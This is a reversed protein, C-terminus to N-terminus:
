TGAKARDLAAALQALDVDFFRTEYDDKKWGAYHQRRELIARYERGAEDLRKQGLYWWALLARAPLFNPEIDILDGLYSVARDQNGLVLHLRALEYRYFPSYPYDTLAREYARVSARRWALRQESTVPESMVSAAMAAYVHGELGSLRGDMPNLRIAQALEALAMGASAREHNREFEQFYLSALSNHYLAKGSDLAVAAHYHGRAEAWQQTAAAKSGAEFEAWAVGLRVAQIAMASIVVIVGVMWAWRRWGSPIPLARNSASRCPQLRPAAILLGVLVTLLVAIGPEHLNSDVGAHTLIGAVAGGIGVLLGRQWRHLRQRLVDKAECVVRLIGWSFVAVGAWGLEVGIQLYENHSTQAVKGYRAIEGDVPFAYRPYLYQYLGLGVGLPHDVMARFSSQWLQWRAYGVPNATHEAWLRDRIPSALVVIAALVVTLVGLGRVGFRAGVVVASAAALVIVGGRSKTMIVATLLLAVLMVTVIAIGSSRLSRLRTDLRVTYGLFGLLIAFPIILYGALFNPNFFTGGPRSAGLWFAQV